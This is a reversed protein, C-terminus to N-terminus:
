KVRGASEFEIWVFSKPPVSVSVTAGKSGIVLGATKKRKVLPGEVTADTKGVLGAYGVPFTFTDKLERNTPNFVLGFAKLLSPDVHLIADLNRGDARRVHIVDSELVQRNKKFWTVWRIVAAKTEPSDYLRPGRYCSQVGFAFNNVLHMQYDDLHDKLPEITAEPGGGHYEVLPTFMWGMSPAKEWTGDYLNQRAHIHQQERPLSWNTERYGMGTKNSGALFYNDPVNLFVGRGRCWRYFESIAQYQRYQSDDFDRHGPHSTSACTDGPYSGDHELLNFGTADIFHKVKRFYEQGWKSCLCPSNGFIPKPNVVDNEKDISRSALLSYGGFGLGKSNAYQRFAKFKAINEPSDDEMNLGSGFSLIIMEFGCEAAQDIASHVVAPDVSTLHMMIPNEQVWPALTRYLRRVGLGKRERESSDHILLFSRFSEFKEGPALDIAPGTPQKIVLDCPTKLNYNVQTKFAPDPEWYITKNSNRTSMGGFSYDSVATVDPREWEDSDDVISEAEALGLAHEFRDLRVAKSTGNEITIWKGFAPLGDYIEYNVSVRIGPLSANEFRLILHKGSPPWGQITAKNFSNSWPSWDMRASIEAVVYDKFAFSGPISKMDRLWEPTLFALNPQGALGGVAYEKGDLSITAEPKVARLMENGTGHNKLSVCALNPQTQFTREVLGNGIKIESKGSIQAKFGDPQVLWDADAAFGLLSSAMVLALM